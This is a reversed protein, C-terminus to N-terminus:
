IDSQDTSLFKVIQGILDKLITESVSSRYPTLINLSLTRYGALGTKMAETVRYSEVSNQQADTPIRTVLHFDQHPLM